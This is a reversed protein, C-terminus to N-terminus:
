KQAKKARLDRVLQFGKKGTEAVDSKLAHWEERTLLQGTVAAELGDTPAAILTMAKDVLEVREAQGATLLKKREDGMQLAALKIQTNAAELTAMAQVAMSTASLLLQNLELYMSAPGAMNFMIGGDDPYNDSM